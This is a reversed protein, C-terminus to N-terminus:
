YFHTNWIGLICGRCMREHVALKGLLRPFHRCRPLAACPLLQLLLLLLQQQLLLLLHSCESASLQTNVPSYAKKSISRLDSKIYIANTPLRTFVLHASWLIKVTSTLYYRLSYNLYCCHLHLVVRKQARLAWKGLQKYHRSTSPGGLSDRWYGLDYNSPVQGLLITFKSIIGSYSWSIAPLALLANSLVVASSFTLLVLHGRDYSHRLTGWAASTDM